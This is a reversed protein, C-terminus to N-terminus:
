HRDQRRHPGSANTLREFELATLVNPYIATATASSRAHRRLRRLRHGPRHQGGRDRRARGEADLDICEKRASRSAPAASRATARRGLHLVARRRRLRQARGASVAHLHGQAHAIGADFESPVTVPCITTCVDCAVCASSMWAARRRASRSRTHARARRQGGRSRCYTM